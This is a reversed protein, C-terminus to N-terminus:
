SREGASNWKDMAQQRSSCEGTSCGCENCKIFYSRSYNMETSFWFDIDNSQCRWCPKLHGLYTNTINM